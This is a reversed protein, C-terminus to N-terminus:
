GQESRTWVMRLHEPAAVEYGRAEYFPVMDELCILSIRRCEALAPHSHAREILEVGLGRGRWEPDVILDFIKARYVGDTIARVFGALKGGATAAIVLDSGELM